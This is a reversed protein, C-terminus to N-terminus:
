CIAGLNTELRKIILILFRLFHEVHSRTAEVHPSRLSIRLWGPFTREWIEWEAAFKGGPKINSDYFTEYILQM